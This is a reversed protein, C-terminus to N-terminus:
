GPALWAGFSQGASGRLTVRITGADLGDIGHRKTIASSLLGGVTRNVNRVPVDAEVPTGDEIAPRALEILEWDLAGPLPSDPAHTRRLPTGGEGEPRVLLGSLDVGRAKWHDIAEDAELLDTRGVLEDFRRIGLRAMIQRAEEAVFFFFDVVHEPQGAFRAR